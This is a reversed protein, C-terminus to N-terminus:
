PYVVLDHLNSGCFPRRWDNHAGCGCGYSRYVKRQTAACTPWPIRVLITGSFAGLSACQEATLARSDIYWDPLDAEAPEDNFSSRHSLDVFEHDRKRNDLHGFSGCPSLDVWALYKAGCTVCTANAFLGGAYEAYYLGAESDRIPRASEDLKVTMQRCFRCGPDGINRSV